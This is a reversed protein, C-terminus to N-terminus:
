AEAVIPLTLLSSAVQEIIQPNNAQDKFLGALLVSAVFNQAFLHSKELQTM